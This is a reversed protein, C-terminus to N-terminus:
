LLGPLRLPGWPEGLLGWSAELLGGPPAWSVWFAELITGLLRARKKQARLGRLGWSVWFAEM